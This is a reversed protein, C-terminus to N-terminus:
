MFAGMLHNIISKHKNLIGLDSISFTYKNRSLSVGILDNSSGPSGDTKYSFLKM